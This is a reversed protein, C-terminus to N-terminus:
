ERDVQIASNLRVARRNAVTWDDYEGLLEDARGGVPIMQDAGIKGLMLLRLDDEAYWQSLRIVVPSVQKSLWRLQREADTEPRGVRDIAADIDPRWRPAIGRAVYWRYVSAAISAPHGDFSSAM